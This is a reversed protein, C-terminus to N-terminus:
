RGTFRPKRKELFAMNGEKRDETAFLLQFSKRELAFGQDLGAEAAAHVTEKIMRAGWPPMAAIKAAIARAEDLVQDDPVCRSALGAAFAEAGSMTEGTLCMLAARHRGILRTLRQTGGAGPMVGVRIEPLGLKAGEGVVVVDCALALELGGGLAFGRVAAIVPKPCEVIPRMLRPAKRTIAGLTDLAALEALDAGAAFAKEDGTLLVVRVAEDDALELFADHLAQRLELNLANLADPRDLRLTTVGDITAERLLVPM